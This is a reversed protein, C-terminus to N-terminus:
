QHNIMEFFSDEDIVPIELKRAKELKSGADEGALLYDTKKSVSGTAKGGNKEILAKADNRKLTPLTGTIVFTKGDLILSDPEDFDAEMQLGYSKLREILSRNQEDEFFLNVSEAIRPGISDIETLEETSASMLKDLTQMSKALDRAVTTGVFRIGLAYLVRDFPQEKSKQIADILNQASKEAMRELPLLQEMTLEYLDAYNTILGEDVLQEVISEGLGDIDMADRSAFHEIRIRMQPPCELNVCRWAVEEPLKVLKSGCAPCTEPFQFPQARGEADADVVKVVQPIIEGAKEVIVQDGVRIDKREIEDQNHLSARKVTTGALQVPELEAVPTISGLRGVQLTIGNLKTIAQEAEFKYAIAWRPAKATQGLEDRFKDENVKVVVGDTEFPYDNRTTDWQEIQQHVQQINDCKTRHQCVHFRMEELTDLKASQSMERNDDLLMDYAFYRIPRQAVIKSDQLKLSGATANRPNAFVNDGEEERQRNMAAFADREMYAEGRIEIIDAVPNEIKLPIDRITRVNATIDDGKRGDGRTAALVLAGNEYRLRLAMGDYKLEAMYSFDSHGLMDKVRRDFDDLEEQNYTNSLSLMPIPHEVTPFDKTPAGGVRQSPSDPTQLDFQQELAILEEMATDYERDTLEPQAKQYYLYDAKRILERLEAIKKEAESVNM